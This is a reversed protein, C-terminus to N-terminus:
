ILPLATLATTLPASTTLEPPTAEPVVTALPPVTTTDEPAAASEVIMPLPPLSIM